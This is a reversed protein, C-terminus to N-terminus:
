RNILIKIAVKESQRQTSPEALVTVHQGAALASSAVHEVQASVVERTVNTEDTLAITASSGNTLTVTFTRNDMSEITGEYGITKPLANSPVSQGRLLDSLSFQAAGQAAQGGQNQGSRKPYAAILIGTTTLIIAAGISWRLARIPWHEPISFPRLPHNSFTSNANTTKTSTM